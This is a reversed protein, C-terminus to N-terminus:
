AACTSRSPCRRPRPQARHRRRPGAGRRRLRPGVGRHHPPRVPLHDNTPDFDVWGPGPVWVSCWAHSADAGGAADPPRDTEIYGSVYRAALGMTRLCGAALHAFDQCVGRRAALVASLPTSVDTFSPDYEFSRHILTSLARTADVIPRGPSFAADAIARLEAGHLDLAVFLSGGAFPRM